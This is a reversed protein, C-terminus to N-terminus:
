ILICTIEVRPTEVMSPSATDDDRHEIRHVESRIQNQASTAM